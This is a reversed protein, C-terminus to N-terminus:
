QIMGNRGSKNKQQWHRGLIMLAKKLVESDQAFSARIYNKMSEGFFEGAVVAVGLEDLEDVIENGDQEYRICVFFAGEPVVYDVHYSNLIKKTQFLALAYPESYNTGERLVLKALEQGFSSMAGAANNFYVHLKKISEANSFVWGIRAGQLPFMKSFSGVIYGRDIYPSFDHHGRSSFILERYVEDMIFSVHPHRNLFKHFQHFDDNTLIKGTPNHPSNIIIMKTKENMLSEVSDWDIFNKDDSLNLKYRCIKGHAFEAMKVYPPFGPDPILIESEGDLHARLIFDLAGMTGHTIAINDPSFGPYYKQLIMERLQFDGLSPYYGNINQIDQLHGILKHPFPSLRPEGIRLDYFEQDPKRNLSIKKDLGFAQSSITAM